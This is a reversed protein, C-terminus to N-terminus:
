QKRPGTPRYKTPDISRDEMHAQYLAIFRAVAGEYRTNLRYLEGEDNHVATLHEENPLSRQLYDTLGFGGIPSQRIEELVEQKAARQQARRKRFLFRDIM